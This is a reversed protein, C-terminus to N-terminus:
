KSSFYGYATTQVTVLLLSVLSIITWHVRGRGFNFLTKESGVSIRACLSYLTMNKSRPRWLSVVISFRIAESFARNPEDTFLNFIFALIM